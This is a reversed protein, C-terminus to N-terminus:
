VNTQRMSALSHRKDRAETCLCEEAASSGTRALYSLKTDLQIRLIGIVVGVRMNDSM